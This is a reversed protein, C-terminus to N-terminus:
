ILYSGANVKVDAYHEGRGAENEAVVKYTGADALTVNCPARAPIEVDDKYWTVKPNPKGGTVDFNTFVLPEGVNLVHKHFVDGRL